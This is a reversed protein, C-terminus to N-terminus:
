DEVGHVEEEGDEGVEEEEFEEGVYLLYVLTGCAFRFCIFISLSFIYLSVMKVNSTKAKRLHKEFKLDKYLFANLYTRPM